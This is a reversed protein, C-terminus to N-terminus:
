SFYTSMTKKEYVAIVCKVTHVTNHTYSFTYQCLSCIFAEFEGMRSIKLVTAITRLTPM